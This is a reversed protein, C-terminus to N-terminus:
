NSIKRIVKQAVKVINEYTINLKQFLDQWPASAGFSDIGIVEGDNGVWREWALTSGAEISVRAKINPPLVKDQYEKTQNEFLDWSPMAIVRAHIEQKVLEEQAEIAIPVESGTAILLVDPINKECDSLIYAGYALNKASTFKSRDLVPVNQRTVLICTPGSNNSIAMRWAEIVENSDSPRIVSLNPVSRLGLIQEIPQHTPGDEGLGVSDHSFVFIEKLGMMAALRIGPRMYDSFVLFTAAYPLLGGHLAIGNTISTMAHERVGYRLNRGSYNAASYDGSENILTMTAPALDASGGILEPLADAIGNIIEGTAMRTPIGEPNAEFAEPLYEEWNSPYDNNMIRNFETAEQPFKEKYQYFNQEWNKELKKGTSIAERFSNLTNEPIYFKESYPWGLTEKASAIEDIGLPGAHAISKGQKTPTGYGIITKIAIISPRQDENKASQIALNIAEVNNGDSVKQVHWGYAEFRKPLDESFALDTNGEITIDNDDYLCILKGLGLHGALSAAEASVGEMLDGDSTVVYTYHDVIKPTDPKNFVASLHAEAMAMGVANSFGQGLPGTTTEVGPVHGLEPHGPTKSDLQRFNKIDELSLDYGTLHLLSYLMASSHGSSLVFRDRDVWDPHTPSHKLFNKWLAYTMPAIGFTTGPHGSSAKQVADASLFRITNIQEKTEKMM